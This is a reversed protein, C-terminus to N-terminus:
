AAPNQRKRGAADLDRLMWVGLLAAFVFLTSAGLSFVFGAKVYRLLGYTMVAGAAKVASSLVDRVGTVRAAFDYGAEELLVTGFLTTCVSAAFGEAAACLLIGAAGSTVTYVSWVGAVVPLFLAAKAIQGTRFFKRFRMLFAMAVLNMGYLVSLILGWFPTSIRLEDFAYAYFALNVCVTGFDLATLSLIAFVLRRRRLIHRLGAMLGGAARERRVLRPAAAGKVAYLCLASLSFFGCTVFFASDTGFAQVFAGALAPMVLSVVGLGGTLLSNGELIGRQGSVAALMRGRAPSYLVDLVSMLLLAATVQWAGRCLLFLLTFVARLADYLILLGRPQTSDGICGAALSFLVGPLPAM